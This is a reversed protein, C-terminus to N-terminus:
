LDKIEKKIVLLVKSIDGLIEENTFRLTKWGLQKLKEEKKLDKLKNKTTNHGKGDVEISIKLQPNGIDAKYCTPYGSGDRQNNGTPIGVETEWGLATALLIQSQTLNGNGGRKGKWVNLTGNIRKTNMAKIMNIEYYSPNMAKMRKSNEQRQAIGRETQFYALRSQSSHLCAEQSHKMGSRTRGGLINGCIRNCTTRMRGPTTKYEKGCIVCNQSVLPVLNAKGHCQKSCYMEQGTKLAVGCIKCTRKLREM